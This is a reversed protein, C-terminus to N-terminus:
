NGSLEYGWVSVEALSLPADGNNMQVLLFKGQAEGVVTVSQGNTGPGAYTGLLEGGTFMTAVTTPLSDTARVEVNNM